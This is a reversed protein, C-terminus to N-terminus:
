LDNLCALFRLAPEGLWDVSGSAYGVVLGSRSVLYTIPMGYLAFPAKHPNDRNAFAVFEHPDLFIPLERLGSATKYRDVVSRSGKDHSVALIRLDPIRRSQLLRDLIPLERRCPLCWTAWFNVLMPKGRLSALDLHGGELRFLTVPPLVRPARFIVVPLEGKLLAKTLCDQSAVAPRSISAVFLAAASGLINRRTPDSLTELFTSLETEATTSDM